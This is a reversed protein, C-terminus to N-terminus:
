WWLNKTQQLNGQMVCDSFASNLTAEVIKEDGLWFLKGGIGGIMDYKVSGDTLETLCGYGKGTGM